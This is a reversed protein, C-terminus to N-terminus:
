NGYAACSRPWTCGECGECSESLTTCSEVVRGDCAELCRLAQHQTWRDNDSVGMWATNSRQVVRGGARQESSDALRRQHGYAARSDATSGGDTDSGAIRADLRWVAM